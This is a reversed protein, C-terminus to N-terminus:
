SRGSGGLREFKPARKELLARAGEKADPRAVADWQVRDGEALADRYDVGMHGYVLRKTDAVTMPAADRAITAVYERSFAMLEAPEVVYEVLGIREAEDADVMRSTWLLDLARGPGLMRPLNWSTGHEAILGRKLFTTTFRAERSAIRVDAMAALVLGGGAAVGNVAAIIPKPTEIFYSFMGPLDPGAQGSPRRSAGGDSTTERLATSDLGACFGRGTGTVVIGVVRADEAAERIAARIEGLMGYTLANLKEPRNLRVVCVPDEIEVVVLEGENM